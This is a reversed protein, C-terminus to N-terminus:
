LDGLWQVGVGSGALKRILKEDATLLPIGLWTALAAYTADYATIGLTLALDLVAGLLQRSEVARLDLASITELGAEAKEAPYSFRRVYKWLINACEPYFLDPVYLHVPPDEEMRAFVLEAKASLDEPVVLKIGVSADVVWEPTL